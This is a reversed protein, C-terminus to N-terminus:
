IKDVRNRSMKAQIWDQPAFIASAGKARQTDFLSLPLLSWVRHSSPSFDKERVPLVNSAASAARRPTQDVANHRAEAQEDPMNLPENARDHSRNM